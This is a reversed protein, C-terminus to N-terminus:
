MEYDTTKINPPIEVFDAQMGEPVTEAEVVEPAAPAAFSPRVLIEPAGTDDRVVLTTADLYTVFLHREWKLPDPLTLVQGAVEAASYTERLRTASEVELDSKLVLTQTQGFASASVTATSRPQSPSITISPKSLVLLSDPLRNGVSLFFSAPTFGGAYMLLAIERTPSPIPGPSVGGSYAVEWTGDLLASYAPESEPNTAEVKTLMESVLLRDAETPVREGSLKSLMSDKMDARVSLLTRGGVGRARAVRASLRARPGPNACPQRLNLARAVNISSSMAM